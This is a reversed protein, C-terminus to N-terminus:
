GSPGLGGSEAAAAGRVGLLTVVLASASALAAAPWVHRTIAATTFLLNALLWILLPRSDPPLSARKKNLLSPTAFILIVLATVTQAGLGVWPRGRWDARPSGGQWPWSHEVCSAFPQCALNFLVVLLVTLGIVQFGYTSSARCPRLILRAVGRSTLLALWWLAAAWPLWGLMQGGSRGPGTIPGLPIGARAGVALALGALCLIIMSALAVNQGPAQRAQGALTGGAALLLLLGEPWWADGLLRHPLCVRVWVLAFQALLLGLWLGSIL